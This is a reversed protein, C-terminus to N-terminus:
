RAPMTAWETRIVHINLPAPPLRDTISTAWAERFRENFTRRGSRAPQAGAARAHAATAMTTCRYPGVLRASVGRYVPCVEGRVGVSAQDVLRDLPGPWYRMNAVM